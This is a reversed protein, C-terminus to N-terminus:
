DIQNENTERLKKVAFPNMWISSDYEQKREKDVRVCEDTHINKLMIMGKRGIKEKHEKTKPKKAVREVWKAVEEPSRSEGKNSEGIKRKTEETHKRGYFKNGSGKMSEKLVSSHALRACEYQKATFFRQQNSDCRMMCFWAHALKTSRYHKYLLAHAVYHERATLRVLNDKSNCGGMCRPIIHHSETYGEIERDKANKMLADYIRKYDM